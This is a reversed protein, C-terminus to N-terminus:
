CIPFTLRNRRVSCGCGPAWPTCTTGGVANEISHRYLTYGGALILLCLSCVGAM